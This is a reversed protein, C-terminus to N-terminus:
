NERERSYEYLYTVERWHNKNLATAKPRFDVLADAGSGGETIERVVCGGDVTEKSKPGRGVSKKIANKNRLLSITRKVWCSYGGRVSNLLDGGRQKM